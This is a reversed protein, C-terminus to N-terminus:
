SCFCIEDGYESGITVGAENTASELGDSAKTFSVSRTLMSRNHITAGTHMATTQIRTSASMM